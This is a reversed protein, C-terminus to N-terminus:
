LLPDNKAAGIAEARRSDARVHRFYRAALAAGLESLTIVGYVGHLVNKCGHASKADVIHRDVHVTGLRRDEIAAPRRKQRREDFRTKSVDGALRVKQLQRLRHPDDIARRDVLGIWRRPELEVDGNLKRM